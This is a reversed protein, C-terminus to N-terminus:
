ICGGRRYVRQTGRRSTLRLISPLGTNVTVERSWCVLRMGDVVVGGLRGNLTVAPLDLDLYGSMAKFWVSRWAQEASRDVALWALARAFGESCQNVSIHAPLRIHVEGNVVVPAPDVFSEFM